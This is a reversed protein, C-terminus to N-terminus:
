NKVCCFKVCDYKTPILLEEREELWLTTNEFYNKYFADLMDKPIGRKLLKLLKKHTIKIRMWPFEKKNYDGFVSMYKFEHIYRDIKRHVSTPRELNDGNNKYEMWILCAEARSHAKFSIDINCYHGGDLYGVGYEKIKGKEYLLLSSWFLKRCIDNEDELYELILNILDTPVNPFLEKLDDGKDIIKTYSSM